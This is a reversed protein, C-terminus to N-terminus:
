LCFLDNPSLNNVDHFIYDFLWNNYKNLYNSKDTDKQAEYYKEELKTLDMCYKEDSPILIAGDSGLGMIQLARKMSYHAQESVLISMKESDKVGDNWIDYNAKVQRAALLATMNGLTGGSTFFGDANEKFGVKSAMWKILKREIVTEVPGTEFIPSSTACPGSAAADRRVMLPAINVIPAEKAIRPLGEDIAPKNAKRLTIFVAVSLTPSIPSAILPKGSSWVLNTLREVVASERDFRILTEAVTSSACNSFTLIIISPIEFASPM